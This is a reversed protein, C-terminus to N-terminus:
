AAAAEAAKEDSKQNLNEIARKLSYASAGVVVSDIGGNPHEVGLDCISYQEDATVVEEFVRATLQTGPIRFRMTIVEYFLVGYPCLYIFRGSPRM